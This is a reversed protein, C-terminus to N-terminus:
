TLNKYLLIENSDDNPLKFQGIDKYWIKRYFYQAEENEQTSTLIWEHWRQKMENEWFEVIKRWLWKWRMWKNVKLMNMIPIEDWFFWFRIFWICVEELKIIIILKDQIKREIVSSSIHSDSQILYELDEISAYNIEM